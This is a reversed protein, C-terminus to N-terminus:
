ASGESNITPITSTTPVDPNAVHQSAYAVAYGAVFSLTVAILVFAGLM